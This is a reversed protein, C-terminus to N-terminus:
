PRQGKILRDMERREADSYGSRERKDLSKTEPAILKEFGTAPAVPEKSATPLDKRISEPAINKLSMAGWEVLPFTRSAKIWEPHKARDPPLDMIWVLGFYGASVIFGGLAIGFLLGLSRDLASLGSNRVQKGIMHSFMTFILLAVLFLGVGAAIDAFLNPSIWQRAIPQVYKFGYLTSFGAGVWGLMALVLRTLGTSFAIIATLLVIVIIAIDLVAM